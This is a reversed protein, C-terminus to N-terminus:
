NNEGLVSEFNILKPLYNDILGLHIGIRTGILVGPKGAVERRQEITIASLLQRSEPNATFPPAMRVGEIKIIAGGSIGRPTPSTQWKGAMLVQDEFALAIHTKKDIKLLSYEQDEHEISPFCERKANANEGQTNSKKVRFGAAMYVSKSNDPQTLDLDELSLAVEKIKDTIGQQVHFVSADIPDDAHTGSQGQKSSFRDGSLTALRSGDGAGILLAYSGIDDFVHSASFIFYEAEIRVVVGSAVQEPKTESKLTWYIPLVANEVRQPVVLAKGMQKRHIQIALKVRPDSLDIKPKM